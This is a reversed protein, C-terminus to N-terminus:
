LLGKVKAEILIRIALSYDTYLKAVTTGGNGTNMRFTLAMRKANKLNQIVAANLDVTATGKSAQIVRGSADVPAASVFPVTTSYVQTGTSDLWTLDLNIDFPFRNTNQLILKAGVIQMGEGDSNFTSAGDFDSTDAFRLNGASLELPLEMEMDIRIKSNDTLFNPGANGAPNLLVTGGYTITDPPLSLLQAIQSNTNNFSVIGNASTGPITPYPLLSPAANLSVNGNAASKGTMNLGLRIPAGISNAIKLKVDPSAFLFDGGLERLFALDLELEGPDIAISKQGFYGEIYSFDIDQFGYSVNLANSSDIPKLTGSSVLKAQVIVPIQNFPQASNTTLDITANTLDITWATTANSAVDISDLIPVNNKLIGPLSVIIRIPESITSQFNFNIEGDKLDIEYLEENDTTAFDVNNTDAAFEQSPIRVVGGVVTLNNGTANITLQSALSILSPTPNGNSEIKTINVEIDNDMTKGALSISRTQTAGPLVGGFRAFGLSAGGVNSLQFVLSDLPMPYGNILTFDLSGSAFNVTSFATLAPMPYTGGAQPTIAPFPATFGNLASIANATTPSLNVLLDSLVIARGTTFNEISIEGLKLSQTSPAQSPIDIIDAVSQEALSDQAFAIKISSDPNFILTSDETILNKLTINFTSVPIGFGQEWDPSMFNKPKYKDKICATLLFVAVLPFTLKWTSQIRFKNMPQTAFDGLSVLVM